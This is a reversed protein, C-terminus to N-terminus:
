YTIECIYILTMSNLIILDSFCRLFKTWPRFTYVDLPQIMGTTGAPITLIKVQKNCVIVDQFNKKTKGSWSHLCLVSTEGVNPLFAEEYWKIILYSTLKGSISAFM